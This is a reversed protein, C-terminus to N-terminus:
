RKRMREITAPVDPSTFSEMELALGTEFAESARQRTIETFARKTGNV